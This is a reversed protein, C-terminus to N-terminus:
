VKENEELKLERKIDKKLAMLEEDLVDIRDLFRKLFEVKKPDECNPQEAVDDFKKAQKLTELYIKIAEAIAADIMICDSPTYLNKLNIPDPWTRQGYDLVVSIM